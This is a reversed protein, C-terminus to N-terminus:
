EVPAGDPQAAGAVSAGAEESARGRRRGTGRNAYFSPAIRDYDGEKWRLYTIIRRADDYTDLLLTFARQRIDAAATVGAQAREGLALALRDALTEARALYSRTIGSAGEIAFWNADFVSVLQLVDVCLNKFGNRGVLEGLVGPHLVDRAVLARAEAHLADRIKTLEAAAPQLNVGTDFAQRRAHAILAARAVLDLRDLCRIRDAGCLESLAPRYVELDKVVGMVLLACTPVDLNVPVLTRPDMALLEDRLVDLAESSSSDTALTTTM